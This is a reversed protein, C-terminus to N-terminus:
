FKNIFCKLLMVAGFKNINIITKGQSNKMFMDLAGNAILECLDIIKEEQAITCLLHDSADKGAVHFVKLIAHDKHIATVKVLSLLTKLIWVRTQNM